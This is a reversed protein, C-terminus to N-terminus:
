VTRLNVVEYHCAEETRFPFCWGSAGSSVYLKTEGHRFFGYADYGLLRYLAQLPFLQGAHSHGSVQLDAGSEVIDQTEYPSHDALLVFADEPRPAIQDVRKRTEMSYDERGFLVLDDSLRVWEDQLIQIGNARIVRELEGSTFTRENDSYDTQRDHNGYIFYVPTDMAGFLAFVEEMEARTTFVDVIDGGLVVFDADEAAIRQITQRTTQMSQASGVHLDAVFVFTHPSTLKESAVDVRNASVTQMNITGFLLFAATCAVSLMVQLLPRNMKKSIWGVILALIDAAADGFLAAYLAAFVFTPWYPLPVPSAVVMMAVFTGLCLKGILLLIRPLIRARARAPRQLLALVALWAVALLGWIIYLGVTM